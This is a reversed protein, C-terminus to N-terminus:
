IKVVVRVVDEPTARDRLEADVNTPIQNIQAASVSALQASIHAMWYFAGPGVEEIIKRAQDLRLEGFPEVDNKEDNIVEILFDRIRTASEKVRMESNILERYQNDFSKRRRQRLIIWTILFAIFLTELMGAGIVVPILLNECRILHHFNGELPSM